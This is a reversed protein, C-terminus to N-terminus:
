KSVVEMSLSDDDFVYRTVTMLEIGMSGDLKCFGEKNKFESIVGFVNTQNFTAVKIVELAYKKMVEDVPDEEEDYDNDWTFFDLTSQAMEPTFKETDVKFTAQADWINYDFTYHKIM